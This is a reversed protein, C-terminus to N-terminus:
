NSGLKKSQCNRVEDVPVDDVHQQWFAEINVPLRGGAVEGRILKVLTGDNNGSAPQMASVGRIRSDKGDHPNRKPNKYVFRDLFHSLTNLSLDASATLDTFSLLQAAHLSISPHYHQMLPIQAYTLTTQHLMATKSAGM